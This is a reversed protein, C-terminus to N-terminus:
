WRRLAHEREAYHRFLGGLSARLGEPIIIDLSQGISASRWLRLRARCRPELFRIVGEADAYIIADPAERVITQLLRGIDSGVANDTITSTADSM